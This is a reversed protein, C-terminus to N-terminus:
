KGDTGFLKKAAGVAGAGALASPIVRKLGINIAAEKAARLRMANHYESMAQQYQDLKGAQDAAGSIARNLDATFQGVQRRMVPTLRQAEDASLRTANTYFDRAESYTLAAKDPDTVRKIFDRMVKPMSAGSAALQQTRLATNGPATINIPIDGAASMVQQFKAGAREASPILNGVLDLAYTTGATGARIAKTGVGAQGVEGTEPGGVFTLPMTAAQFGGAGIDVAGQGPKGEAVEGAGKTARLLGLPLSAMYEGVKEPEGSYVGHAGMKQLVDGVGTLNTGYRIDDSV